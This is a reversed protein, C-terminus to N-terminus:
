SHERLVEEEMASAATHWWTQLRFVSQQWEDNGRCEVCAKLIYITLDLVVSQAEDFLRAHELLRLRMQCALTHSEINTYLERVMNHVEKDYAVWYDDRLKSLLLKYTPFEGIAPGCEPVTPEEIDALTTFAHTARDRIEDSPMDDYARKLLEDFDEYGITDGHNDRFSDLHPVVPELDVEIDYPPDRLRLPHM